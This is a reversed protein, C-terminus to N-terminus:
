GEEQVSKCHEIFLEQVEGRHLLRPLVVENEITKEAMLRYVIGINKANIRDIRFIVQGYHEPDDPLSLIAMARGGEHLNLGIGGSKPHVFLLDLEGAQWEKEARQKESKTAHGNIEAFKYGAFAERLADREFDHLYVIVMPDGYEEVISKLRDIKASHLTEYYRDGDDSEAYIAGAAIQRLKNYKQRMDIATVSDELLEISFKRKMINYTKRARESLPVSVDIFHLGPTKYEVNESVHARGKSLEALKEGTDDFPVWDYNKFGGPYFYKQQFHTIKDGFSRGLDVIYQQPFWALLTKAVPTGTMTHRRDFLPALKRMIKTRKSSWKKFGQSEDIILTRKFQLLQRNEFLWKLGEPNIITVTHGFAEEKNKGHAIAFDTGSFQVWKEIENPWTTVAPTLPAIVLAPDRTIKLVALAVATKGTGPKALLACQPAAVLARIAREQHPAPQFYERM